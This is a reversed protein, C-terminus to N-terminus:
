GDKPHLYLSKEGLKTCGTYNLKWGKPKMERVQQMLQAKNIQVYGGMENFLDDVYLFATVETNLLMEETQESSLEMM